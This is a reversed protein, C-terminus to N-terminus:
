CDPIKKEDAFRFFSSQAKGVVVAVNSCSSSPVIEEEPEQEATTSSEPAEVISQENAAEHATEADRVYGLMSSLSNGIPTDITMEGEKPSACLVVGDFSESNGESYTINYKKSEEDFVIATVTTDLKIDVPTTAKAANILSTCLAANNPAITCFRNKADSNMPDSDLM